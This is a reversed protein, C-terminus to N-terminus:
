KFEKTAEYRAIAEQSTEGPQIEIGFGTAGGKWSGTSEGIEHELDVELTHKILKAWPFWKRYWFRRVQKCTAITHQTDGNKKTYSYPYTEELVTKKDGDLVSDQVRWGDFSLVECHSYKWTLWPLDWTIWTRGTTQGISEDHKGGIYLWLTSNHICIGYRPLDCGEALRTKFPLNINLLGWIFCMSITYHQNFYAGRSVVFEFGWRPAFYGWSFDISDTNIRKLGFWRKAWLQWGTFEYSYTEKM